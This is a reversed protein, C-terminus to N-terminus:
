KRRAYRLMVNGSPYPKAELLELPVRETVGTIPLRGDGLLLPGVIFQYEDILGHETLQSVLSGSGFIIMDKGPQQKLAALERADFAKVLRSNKWTVEKRKKSFVLKTADNLMEAMARMEPSRRRAHPDPADTGGGELAHPWFGEFMEYTRRGFLVTDYAGTSSAAARDVADEPVVWDLNGDAGAFYGDASVRNFMVIRRM